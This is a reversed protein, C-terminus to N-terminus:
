AIVEGGIMAQWYSRLTQEQDLHIVLNQYNM